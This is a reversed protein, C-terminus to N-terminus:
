QGRMKPDVADRLGNAFLNLCLMLTSLIISPIFMMSPYTKLFKYGDNILVGLSAHPAPLGLGIFALFAEYFIASPITFTIVIIITPMINPIMHKFILQSSSAGLTRSALIFDQKKLKLVQGRTVRAMGIWYTLVLAMSMTFIGPEFVLLFLILVVLTPIGGIVETIRMMIMDVRGGYFGSVGGYTVGVILNIIAALLGIYLSVRVGEWVRTWLDRGLDDTGFWYYENELGKKLYINEGHKNTGDFIGLKELGPVRPPLKVHQRLPEIQQDYKYQNMYPGFIALLVIIGIIILSAVAIKNEKLRRTTDQWFTLSERQMKEQLSSDAPSFVFLDKKIKADNM